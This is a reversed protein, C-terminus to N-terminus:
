WRIYYGESDVSEPLSAGVIESVYEFAKMKRVELVQVTGIKFQFSTFRGAHLDLLMDEKPVFPVFEKLPRYVHRRPEAVRWADVLAKVNPDFSGHKFVIPAVWPFFDDDLPYLGKIIEYTQGLLIDIRNNEM